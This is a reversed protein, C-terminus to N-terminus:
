HQGGNQPPAVVEGMEMLPPQKPPAPPYAVDGMIARDPEPTQPPTYVNGQEVVPKGMLVPKSTSKKEKSKEPCVKPDKTEPNSTPEAKDKVKVAGMKVPKPQPEVTEPFPMPAGTLMQNQQPARKSEAPLVTFMGAATVAITVVAAQKAFNTLKRRHLMRLGVPCDKTLITGDARRFMRICVRGEANQLLDEAESRTMGALNYVNLQCQGCFRSRDDGEMANWDAPCPTAIQLNELPFADSM